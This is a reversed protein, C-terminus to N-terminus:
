INEIKPFGSSFSPPLTIKVKGVSGVEDVGVGGGVGEGVEGGVKSIM